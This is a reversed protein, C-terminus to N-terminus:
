RRGAFRPMPGADRREWYFPETWGNEQVTSWGLSLWLDPRSYGGDQMFDLYEGNTVLRDALSFPQVFEQHRPGENDYAFSSGDHGIWYLGEPFGLWRLPAAPSVITTKVLSLPPSRKLSM